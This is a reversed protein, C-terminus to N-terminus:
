PEVDAHRIEDLVGDMAAFPELRKPYGDRILQTVVAGADGKEVHLMANIAKGGSLRLNRVMGEYNIAGARRLTRIKDQRESLYGLCPYAGALFEGPRVLIDWPIVRNKRRWEVEVRVWPSAPDGEKKGKEYVRCLKGHKRNGVYLTRGKGSGLDDILEAAPPRGSTTFAGKRYWDLATEINVTRGEFDDHAVDVRAIWAGVSEGWAKVGGWAGAGGLNEIHACGKGNLSVHLTGRQSEGGWAVRGLNVREGRQGPHNLDVCFRYGSWKRSKSTWWQKDIGCVDSL